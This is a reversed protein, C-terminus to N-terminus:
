NFVLSSAARQINTMEEGRNSIQNVSIDGIAPVLAWQPQALKKNRSKNKLILWQFAPHIYFQSRELM